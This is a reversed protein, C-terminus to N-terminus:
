VVYDNALPHEAEIHFKLEIQRTVVLIFIILNVLASLSNFPSWDLHHHHLQNHHNARANTDRGMSAKPQGTWKHINHNNLKRALKVKIVQTVNAFRLDPPQYVGDM